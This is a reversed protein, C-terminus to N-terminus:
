IRYLQRVYNGDTIGVYPKFHESNGIISHFMYKLKHDSKNFISKITQIDILSPTPCLEPHTHWDGIYYYGEKFNKEIIRQASKKNVRFFFRLRTDKRQPLSIRSVILSDTYIDRSFLMGGAEPSTADQKYAKLESIVEDTFVLKLNTHQDHYSVRM